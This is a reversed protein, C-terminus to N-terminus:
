ALDNDVVLRLSQAPAIRDLESDINFLVGQSPSIGHRQRDICEHCAFRTHRIPLAIANSGGRRRVECWGTSLQFVGNANTDIFTGCYVCTARRSVPIGTGDNPSTM